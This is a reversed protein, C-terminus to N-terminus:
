DGGESGDDGGGSPVVVIKTTARPPRRAPKPTHIVTIVQPTPVPNIYVTVPALSATDEATPDSTPQEPANAQAVGGTTLGQIIVAGAITVLAVMGAITIGLRHISNM